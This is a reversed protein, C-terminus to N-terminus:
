EFHKLFDDLDEDEDISSASKAADKDLQITPLETDSTTSESDDLGIGKLFDTAESDEETEAAESDAESASDGAGETEDDDTEDDDLSDKLDGLSETEEDDLSEFASEDLETADEEPAKAGGTSATDGDLVVEFVAAGVTLIDGTSLVTDSVQEEGVFTGNLSDLDRVCIQGDAEYLECHQRSVLPSALTLGVERGRGMTLPLKDLAVITEDHGETRLVLHAGM